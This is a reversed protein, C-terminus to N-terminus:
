HLNRNMLILTFRRYNTEFSRRGAETKVFEKKNVRM